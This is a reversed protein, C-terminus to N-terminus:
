IEKICSFISQIRIAKCEEEVEKGIKKIEVIGVRQVEIKASTNVEQM